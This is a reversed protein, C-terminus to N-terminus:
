LLLFRYYSHSNAKLKEDRQTTPIKDKLRKVHKASCFHQSTPRARGPWLVTNRWCRQGKEKKWAAGRNWKCSIETSISTRILGWCDLWGSLPRKKIRLTHILGSIAAWYSTRWGGGDEGGGGKQREEKGKSLFTCGNRGNYRHEKM